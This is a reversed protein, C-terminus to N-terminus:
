HGHSVFAAKAVELVARLVSDPPREPPPTRPTLPHPPAPDPVVSAVYLALVADFSDDAFSLQEADMEVVEINDLGDANARSSAVALMEPSIDTAVVSGGPRISAAAALAPFGSGCGVDLIRVGPKWDAADRFWDTVASFNQETWDFWAAWGDAVANWHKKQQDKVEM